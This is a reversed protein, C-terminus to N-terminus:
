RHAAWGCAPSPTARTFARLLLPHSVGGATRGHRAGDTLELLVRGGGAPGWDRVAPTAGAAPPIAPRHITPTCLFVMDLDPRSQSAGTTLRRRRLPFRGPAAECPRSMSPSPPATVARAPREAM